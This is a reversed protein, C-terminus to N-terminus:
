SADKMIKKIDKSSYGLFKLTAIPDPRVAAIIKRLQEVTLGSLSKMKKAMTSAPIGSLEALDKDYRLGISVLCGYLERRFDENAYQEEYQPIRPM